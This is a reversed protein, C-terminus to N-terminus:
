SEFGARAADGGDNRGVDRGGDAGRWTGTAARGTSWCPQGTGGTGAMHMAWKISDAAQTLRKNDVRSVAYMVVFFAFLLTIFDAYSVM